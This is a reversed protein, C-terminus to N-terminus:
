LHIGTALYFLYVTVGGVMLWIIKDIVSDWRKMTHRAPMNELITVKENLKDQKEGIVDVKSNVNEMSKNMNEVSNAIKILSVQTDQVAKMGDELEDIRRTNSRSRSDVEQLHVAVDRLEKDEM